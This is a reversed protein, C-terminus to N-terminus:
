GRRFQAVRIRPTPEAPVLTAALALQTYAAEIREVAHRVDFDQAKREAAAALRTRLDPDAAVQEIADALAESDGPPVLVATEGDVMEEAIGGVATAVVPLGLALAEM